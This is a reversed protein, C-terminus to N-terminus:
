LIRHFVYPIVIQHIYLHVLHKHWGLFHTTQINMKKNPFRVRSSIRVQLVLPPFTFRGITLNEMLLNSIENQQQQLIRRPRFLLIFQLDTVDVEKLLVTVPFAVCIGIKLNALCEGAACRM